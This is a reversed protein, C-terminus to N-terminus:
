ATRIARSWCRASIAAGDGAVVRARTCDGSDGHRAAEFGTDGRSAGSDVDAATGFGGDESLHDVKVEVPLSLIVGANVLVLALGTRENGIPVEKEVLSCALLAAHM